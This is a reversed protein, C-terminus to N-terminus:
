MLIFNKTLIFRSLGARVKSYLFLDLSELHSNCLFVILQQMLSKAYWLTYCM